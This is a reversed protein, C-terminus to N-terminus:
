IESRINVTSNCQSYHPYWTKVFFYSQMSHFLQHNQQLSDMTDWHVMTTPFPLQEIRLSNRPFVFTNDENTFIHKGKNTNLFSFLRVPLLQQRLPCQCYWWYIISWLM